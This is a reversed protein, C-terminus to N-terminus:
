RPKKIDESVPSTTEAPGAITKEVDGEQITEECSKVMARGCCQPPEGELEAHVVRGCAHCHYIVANHTEM